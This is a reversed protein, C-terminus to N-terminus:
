DASLGVKVPATERMFATAVLGIVLSVMMYGAPAFPSGTLHSLGKVIFQTAGGLVSMGFAYIIALAGSRVARPLGETM